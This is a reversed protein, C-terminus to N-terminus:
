IIFGYYKIRVRLSREIIVSRIMYPIYDFDILARNRDLKTRGYQKIKDLLLTPNHVLIHATKIGCRPFASDINDARDGMLCKMTLYGRACGPYKHRMRVFQQTFITTAPHDLLQVFDSDNSIVYVRRKPARHNVLRALVGIVDDAEARPAGLRQGPFVRPLIDDYLFTMMVHIYPDTRVRRAAKYVPTCPATPNRLIDHRWIEHRRCDMAFVLDRTSAGTHSVIDRIGRRFTHEFASKFRDVYSTDQVPDSMYHLANRTQYYWTFFSNTTDILVICPSGDALIPCYGRISTRSLLTM